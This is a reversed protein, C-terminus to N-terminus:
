TISISFELDYRGALEISYYEASDNEMRVDVFTSENDDDKEVRFRIPRSAGESSLYINDFLDDILDDDEGALYQIEFSAVILKDGVTFDTIKRTLHPQEFDNTTRFEFVDNGSGGTLTISSPGAIFHDNGAGSIISEFGSIVDRGISLGEASGNEIDIVISVIASSYDLTDAGHDGHYADNSEDAAAVVHDDDAGAHIIDADPGDFIVDNGEDGHITDGGAGAIIVDQGAGGQLADNGDGGDVVDNGLGGFISDNGAEGFLVDAGAGGDIEDNGDGGSVTDNGDEGFIRDNGNGGYVIDNGSGAYVVDDGDGAYVIDDGPGAIIHDKGAGAVIVDNGDQAVINDNGDKADIVDGCLTGVVNDDGETGVIPPAEVVRLYAVQQVIEAGDTIWYTFTVEGNWGPDPNYLWGEEYPTLTGASVKLDLLSLRDGDPDTAGALLLLVSVLYAHCGVLEQLYVPGSLRPARNRLGNPGGGDDSDEGPDPAEISATNGGNRPASASEFITRVNENSPSRDGFVGLERRGGSGSTLAGYDIPPQASGLFSGFKIPLQVVNGASGKVAEDKREILETVTVNATEGASPERESAQDDAAPEPKEEIPTDARTSPFVSKLYAVITGLFALFAIPVLAPKKGADTVYDERVPQKAEQVSEKLAKVTIM